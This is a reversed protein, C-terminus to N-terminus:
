VRKCVQKELASRLIDLKEEPLVNEPGEGSLERNLTDTLMITMEECLDEENKNRLAYSLALFAFHLHTLTWLLANYHKM